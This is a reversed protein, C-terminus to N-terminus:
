MVVQFVTIRSASLEMRACTMEPIQACRVPTRVCGHAPDPLGDRPIGSFGPPCKCIPDVGNPSQCIANPGCADSLSCPNYGVESASLPTVFFPETTAEESTDLNPTTQVTTTTPATTPSFKREKTTTTTAATATTATAEPEDEEEEYDPDPYQQTIM